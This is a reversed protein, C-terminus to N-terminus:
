DVVVSGLNARQWGHACVILVIRQSCLGTARNFLSKVRLTRSVSFEFKRAIHM